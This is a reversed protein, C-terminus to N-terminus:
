ASLPAPVPTTIQPLHSCDRCLLVFMHATVQMCGAVGNAQVANVGEGRCGVGGEFVSV